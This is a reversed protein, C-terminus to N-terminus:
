LFRCQKERFPGWYVTKTVGLDKVVTVCGTEVDVFKANSSNEFFGDICVEFGNEFNTYVFHKPIVHVLIVHNPRSNGLNMLITFINVVSDDIGDHSM